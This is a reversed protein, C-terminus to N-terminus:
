SGRLAFGLVADGPPGPCNGLSKKLERWTGMELRWQAYPTEKRDRWRQDNGLAAWDVAM